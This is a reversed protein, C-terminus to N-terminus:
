FGSMEIVSDTPFFHHIEYSSLVSKLLIQYFIKEINFFHFYINQDLTFCLKNSAYKKTKRNLSQYLVRGLVPFCRYMCKVIM